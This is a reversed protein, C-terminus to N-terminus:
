KKFELEAKRGEITKPEYSLMLSKNKSFILALIDAFALEDGTLAMAKGGSLRALEKFAKIASPNKRVWLAYIPCNTRGLESAEYYGPSEYRGEADGILIIQNPRDQISTQLGIDISEPLDGGGSCLMKEIYEKLYSTDNSWDSQEVPVPDCTIDRYAIVKVQFPVSTHRKIEDVAKALATKAMGWENHMSSTADVILAFRQRLKESTAAAQSLAELDDLNSVNFTDETEVISKKVEISTESM